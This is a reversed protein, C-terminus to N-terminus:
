IPLPKTDGRVATCSEPDRCAHGCVSRSSNFRGKRVKSSSVEKRRGIYREQRDRWSQLKDSQHLACSRFHLIYINPSGSCIPLAKYLFTSFPEIAFLCQWTMCRGGDRMQLWSNQVSTKICESACCCGRKQVHSASTLTRAPNQLSSFVAGRYYDCHGRELWLVSGWSELRVCEHMCVTCACASLRAPEFFVWTIMEMNIKKGNM